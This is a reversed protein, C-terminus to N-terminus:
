PSLLITPNLDVRTVDAIRWRGAGDNTMVVVFDNPDPFPQTSVVHHDRDLVRDEVLTEHLRMTMLSPHVSAVVFTWRQNTSVMTEHHARLGTLSRVLDEYAITGRAFIADALAPDPHHAFLWDRYEFLSRAIAPYAAGTAHVLPPSHRRDIRSGARGGRAARGAAGSRADDVDVEAGAGSAARDHRLSEASRGGFGVVPGLV